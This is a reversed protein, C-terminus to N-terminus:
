CWSITSLLSSFRGFSYSLISVILNDQSASPTWKSKILHRTCRNSEISYTTPPQGLGADRKVHASFAETIEAPSKLPGQASFAPLMGRRPLSARCWKGACRQSVAFHVRRANVRCTGHGGIWPQVIISPSDGACYSRGKSQAM